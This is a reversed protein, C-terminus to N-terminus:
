PSIGTMTSQPSPVYIFHQAGNVALAVVQPAGHILLAIYQVDQHLLPTVLVGVPINKLLSLYAV